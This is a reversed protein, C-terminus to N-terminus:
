RSDPYSLLRQLSPILRIRTRPYRLPSLRRRAGSPPSYWRLWLFQEGHEAANLVDTVLEALVAAIRFPIARIM